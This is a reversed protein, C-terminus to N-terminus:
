IWLKAAQISSSFHDKSLPRAQAKACMSEKCTEVGQLLMLREFM